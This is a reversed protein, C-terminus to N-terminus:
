KISRLSPLVRPVHSAELRRTTSSVQQRLRSLREFATQRSEGDEVVAGSASAACWTDCFYDDRRLAAVIAAAERASRAFGFFAPGWSSMSVGQTGIKEIRRIAENGQRGRFALERRKFGVARMARISRCFDDFDPERIAAMLESAARYSELSETVPIPTYRKFLESEVAGSVPDMGSAIAVVTWWPFQDHFIMPALIPSMTTSSPEFTAKDVRRHGGDVLVGGHWFGWSGISSTGGRQMLGPLATYAVHRELSLCTATALGLRLQTRGGLGLHPPFLSEIQFAIRPRALELRKMCFEVEALMSSPTVSWDRDNTVTIVFSPNDLMLGSGGDIRSGRLSLNHLGFHLRTFTTIQM